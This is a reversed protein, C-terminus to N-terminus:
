KINSQIKDVKLKIVSFDKKKLFLFNNEKKLNKKCQFYKRECRPALNVM